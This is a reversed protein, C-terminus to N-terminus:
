DDHPLVKWYNLHMNEAEKNADDRSTFVQATDKSGVLEGAVGIYMGYYDEKVIFNEPKKRKLIQTVDTKDVSPNIQLFGNFVKKVTAKVLVEDGERIVGSDYDDIDSIVKAVSEPHFVYGSYEITFFGDNKIESVKGSKPFFDRDIHSIEDYTMDEYKKFEVVDGVKIKSKSAKDQYHKAVAESYSM